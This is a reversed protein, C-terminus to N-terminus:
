LQTGRLGLFWPGARDVRGSACWFMRVPLRTLPEDLPRGVEVGDWVLLLVWTAFLLLLFPPAACWSIIGRCTMRGPVGM